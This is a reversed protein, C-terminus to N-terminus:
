ASDRSFQLLAEWPFLCVFISPHTIDNSVTNSCDLIYTLSTYVFGHAHGKLLIQFSGPGQSHREVGM